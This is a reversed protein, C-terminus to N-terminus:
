WFRRWGSNISGVKTTTGRHVTLRLYRGPTRMANFLVPRGDPNTFEEGGTTFITVANEFEITECVDLTFLRPFIGSDGLYERQAPVFYIRDMERTRRLDIIVQPDPAERSERHGRAGVGARLPHEQYVAMTRIRAELWEHRDKMRALEPNVWRAMVTIPNETRGSQADAVAPTAPLMMLLLVRAVSARRPIVHPFFNM